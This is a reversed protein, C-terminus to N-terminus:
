EEEDSVDEELPAQEGIYNDPERFEKPTPLDDLSKLGFYDMFKESTGYLLPKGPGDSRGVIVVLEKELLKQIAYDCSVGRIQELETKTVPQRYAVISLTELASRSLRKRTTQKLFIGVTHHYAGKTMFQYGGGIEEVGFAFKDDAYREKLKLIANVLEQEAFSMGFAEELVSAIEELSIPHDTTFILSEIHQTLHEVATVQIKAFTLV